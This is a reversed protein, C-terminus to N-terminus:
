VCETVACAAPTHTLPPFVDPLRKRLLSYHQSCCPTLLTSLHTHAIFLGLSSPSQRDAPAPIDGTFRGSLATLLCLFPQFTPSHYATVHRFSPSNQPATATAVASYEGPYRCSFASIESATVPSLSGLNEVSDGM